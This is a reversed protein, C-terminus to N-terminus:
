KGSIYSPMTVLVLLDQRLILEVRYATSCHNRVAFRLDAHPVLCAKKRSENVLSFGVFVYYVTM